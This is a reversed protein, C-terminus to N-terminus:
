WCAALDAAKRGVREEQYKLLLLINVHLLSCSDCISNHNELVDGCRLFANKSHGSTESNLNGTYPPRKQISISTKPNSLAEKELTALPVILGVLCAPDADAPKFACSMASVPTQVNLCQHHLLLQCLPMLKNSSTSRM